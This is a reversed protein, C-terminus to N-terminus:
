HIKESIENNEYKEKNGSNFTLINKTSFRVMFGWRM